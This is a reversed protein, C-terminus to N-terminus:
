PRHVTRGHAAECARYASDAKTEPDGLFDVRERPELCATSASALYKILDGTATRWLRVLGDESGTVVEVESDPGPRFAATRVGSLHSFVVHPEGGETSWIRATKDTSATLLWKGDSSFAVQWVEGSHQFEQLVKAASGDVKWIRAKRDASATVIREGDPSFAAGLVRDTHPLPVPAGKLAPPQASWDIAWIRATGDNSATVVRSGDPSFTARWVWDQHGDLTLVPKGPDKAEHLLWVRARNDRTGTIIGAGDPTFAVSLVDSLEQRFNKDDTDPNWICFTGDESGAVVKTGDLSFAVSRIYSSGQFVKSAAKGGSSRQLSADDLSWVKATGDDSSSVVSKGDPSFAVSQVTKDHRGLIRPESSESWWVRSTGDRSATVIKTGDPSFAVATVAGTHGSLVASLVVTIDGEEGPRASGDAPVRVKWVRARLDESGTVVKGGDPSFSVSTVAGAHGDLQTPRAKGDSRWIRASGDQYGCIVLEGNPSFAASEIQPVPEGPSHPLALVALPKGTDLDWIRATGDWSATLLRKGSQDFRVASIPGTHATGTKGLNRIVSGDRGLIRVAYDSYGALIRQGDPSFVLATIMATGSGSFMASCDSRGIWWAGGEFGAAIWRRDPSFAVASLPLDNQSSPCTKSSPIKFIDEPDGRGDSPWRRVAGSVAVTTVQNDLHNGLSGFSADILAATTDHQERKGLVALPITATAAQQISGAAREAAPSYGLGVVALARVLPDEASLAARLRTAREANRARLWFYGVLGGALLVASTVLLRTKLKRSALDRERQRLSAELYSM